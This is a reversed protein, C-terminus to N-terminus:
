MKRTEMKAHAEIREQIKMFINKSSHHYNLLQQISLKEIIHRHKLIQRNGLEIVLLQRYNTSSLVLVHKINRYISYVVFSPVPEIFGHEHAKKLCHLYFTLKTEEVAEDLEIKNSTTRMPLISKVVDNVYLETNKAIATM